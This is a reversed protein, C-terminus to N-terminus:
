LLKKYPTQDPLEPTNTESLAEKMATFWQEGLTKRNIKDPVFECARVGCVPCPVEKEEIRQYTMFVVDDCHNCFWHGRTRM